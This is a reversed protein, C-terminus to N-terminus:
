SSPLTEYSYKENTAGPVTLETVKPCETWYNPNSNLHEIYVQVGAQAAYYAQRQTTTTHTLNDDGNAATYVGAVLLSSVFLVMVAFIMTYGSDSRALRRLFTHPTMRM